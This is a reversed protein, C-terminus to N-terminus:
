LKINNTSRSYNNVHSNAHLHSGSSFNYSLEVYISPQAKVDVFTYFCKLWFFLIFFTYLSAHIHIQSLHARAWTRRTPSRVRRMAVCACLPPAHDHATLSYIRRLACKHCKSCTTWTLVGCGRLRPSERQRRPARHNFNNKLSSSYRKVQFFTMEESIFYKHVNKVCLLCLFINVFM